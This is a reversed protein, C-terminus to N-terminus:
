YQKKCRLTNGPKARLIPSPIFSNRLARISESLVLGFYIFLFSPTALSGAGLLGKIREVPKLLMLIEFHSENVEGASARFTQPLYAFGTAKFIRKM